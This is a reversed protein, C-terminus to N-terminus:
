KRRTHWLKANARPNTGLGNQHAIRAASSITQGDGILRQIEARIAETRPKTILAKQKGGDSSSRAIKVGNQVKGVMGRHKQIAILRALEFIAWDRSAQSGHEVALLAESIKALFWERSFKKCRALSYASGLEIRISFPRAPVVGDHLEWTDDKVSVNRDGPPWGLAVLQANLEGRLKVTFDSFPMQNLTGLVTSAVDDPVDLDIEQWSIAHMEDSVRVESVGAKTSVLTSVRHEKPKKSM